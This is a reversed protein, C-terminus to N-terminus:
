RIRDIARGLERMDWPLPRSLRVTGDLDVVILAFGRPRLRSRPESKAAPDADVIVIMDRRALGEPDEAFHRMQVALNPDHPNDAFVAVVRKQWLFDDLRVESADQVIVGAEVAEAVGPLPPQTAAQAGASLPNALLLACIAGALFRNM